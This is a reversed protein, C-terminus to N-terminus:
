ITYQLQFYQLYQDYTKSSDLRNLNGFLEFNKLFFLFISNSNDIQQDIYNENEEHFLFPRLENVPM